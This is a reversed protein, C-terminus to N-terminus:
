KCLQFKTRKIQQLCKKALSNRKKKQLCRKLREKKKKLHAEKAEKERELLEQAHLSLSAMPNLCLPSVAAKKKDDEDLHSQLQANRKHDALRRRREEEVHALEKELRGINREHMKQEKKLAEISKKLELAAKAYQKHLQKKRRLSCDVMNGFKTPKVSELLKALSEGMAKLNKDHACLQKSLVAGQDTNLCCSKAEERALAKKCKDLQCHAKKLCRSLMCNRRTLCAEQASPGKTAKSVNADKLLVKPERGDDKSGEPHNDVTPREHDVTPGKPCSPKNATKPRAKPSLGQGAETPAQISVSPVQHSSVDSLSGYKPIIAQKAASTPSTTTDINNNKRPESPFTLDSSDSFDMMDKAMKMSEEPSPIIQDKPPKDTPVEQHCAAAEVPVIPPTTDDLEGNPTDSPPAQREPDVVLPMSPMSKEQLEEPTPLPRHLGEFPEPLGYWAGTVVNMTLMLFSAELAGIQFIKM